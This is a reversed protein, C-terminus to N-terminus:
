GKLIPVIQRGMEELRQTEEPTYEYQRVTGIGLTGVLKDGDRIPVCLAGGVGTQKAGPKAVGSSDTQLNCISVPKNQAAVQGAIGKGVPITKVIDIIQPPLGVQATLQLLQKESDLTHITGTESRFQQLLHRLFKDLDAQRSTSESNPQATMNIIMTVTSQPRAVSFFYTKFTLERLNANFRTLHYTYFLNLITQNINQRTKIQPAINFTIDRLKAYSRTISTALSCFIKSSQHNLNTLLRGSFQLPRQPQPNQSQGLRFPRLM